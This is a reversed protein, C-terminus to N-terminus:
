IHKGSFSASSLNALKNEGSMRATIVAILIIRFTGVYITTCKISLLYDFFVMHIEALNM